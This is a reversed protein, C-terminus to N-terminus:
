KNKKKVVEMVEAIARDGEGKKIMNAACHKLHRELLVEDTSKLARQIAQSQLIIDICYAGSEVMDVVKQLQGVSIKYRHNIREKDSKPKYM